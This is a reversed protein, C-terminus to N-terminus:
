NSFTQLSWEDISVTGAVVSICVGHWSPRFPAERQFQMKIFGFLHSGFGADHCKAIPDMAVRALQLLVVMSAVEHARLDLWSM